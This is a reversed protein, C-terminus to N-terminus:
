EILLKDSITSGDKNTIKLIYTGKFLSETNLSNLGNSLNEKKIIQGDLTIIEITEGNEHNIHVVNTAPNPYSSIGANKNSTNVSTIERELAFDWVGRGFTGFRAIQEGEIFKVSNHNVNPTNIDSLDEWTNNEMDYVYPGSLSAAFLYKEDTSLAISEMTTVPINTNLATFNRGGNTSKYVASNSFGNGSVYLVDKNTHSVQIDYARLAAPLRTNSKSWSQGGNQSYFFTADTMAVYLRNPDLPTASISRIRANGSNSNRRFDFPFQEPLWRFNSGNGTWSVKMKILHVGDEGNADNPNIDGGAIYCIKASPDHYHAIPNIWGTTNNGPVKYNKRSNSNKNYSCFMSGNQLFGFWSQGNNFFISRMGDGTTTNESTIQNTNSNVDQTIDRFTGKDQAGFYMTGDPATEQDYLTVVNLGKLGLNETTALNDYSINIGAHNLIIIFPSGNSKKFYELNMIDVHMRDKLQVGNVKKYYEWWDSYQQLFSAGNNTSTYLQFGGAFLQNTEPNAMWAIRFLRRDNDEDKISGNATWSINSGSRSGNYINGNGAIAYLTTQGNTIRATILTQSSPLTAGNQNGTTVSHNGTNTNHTIFHIKDTKKDVVYLVNGDPVKGIAVDDSDYGGGNLSLVNQWSEAHDTSKFLEFASGWPSNKWTHVLYYLTKNDTLKFMKKPAGWQDLFSDQINASRTWTQGNDDSYRPTKNDKGTGYIAVIRQTNNKRVQKLIQTNFKIKDNVLQWQRNDLNGKWIHGGRSLVVLSNDAPEYDVERLDGAENNPGREHWEGLVSASTERSLTNRKREAQQFLIDQVNRSDGTSYLEKFYEEKNDKFAPNNEAEEYDLVGSPLEHKEQEVTCSLLLTGMSISFYLLAKKM